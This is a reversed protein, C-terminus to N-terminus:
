GATGRKVCEKLAVAQKYLITCTRKCVVAFEGDQHAIVLVALLSKDWQHKPCLVKGHLCPKLLMAGINDPETMACAAAFLNVAGTKDGAQM